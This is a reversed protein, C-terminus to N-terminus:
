VAGDTCGKREGFVSSLWGGGEVMYKYRTCLTTCDRQFMISFFETAVISDPVTTFVACEMIIENQYTDECVSSNIGRVERKALVRLLLLMTEERKRQRVMDDIQVMEFFRSVALYIIAAVLGIVFASDVEVVACCGACFLVHKNAPVTFSCCCVGVAVVPVVVDM